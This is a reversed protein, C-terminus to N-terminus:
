LRLKAPDCLEWTVEYVVVGDSTDEDVEKLHSKLAPLFYSERTVYGM